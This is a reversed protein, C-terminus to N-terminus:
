SEELGRPIAKFTNNLFQRQPGALQVHGSNLRLGQLEGQGETLACFNDRVMKLGKFVDGVQDGCGPSGKSRLQQKRASDQLVLTAGSAPHTLQTRQDSPGPKLM